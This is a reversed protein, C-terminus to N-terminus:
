RFAYGLSLGITYTTFERTAKDLPLRLQLGPRLQGFRYDGAVIVQHSTRDADDDDTTANARGTVGSGLSLQDKEYWIQGSYSVLLDDPGGDGGVFSPGGRLRFSVNDALPARYSGVAYLGFTEPLFAELRELEGAMGVLMPALADLDELDGLPARVGFEAMVRPTAQWEVGLYPNGILTSNGALPSSSASGSEAEVSWSARSFPLDAVVGWAGNLAYRGTVFGAATATNFTFEQEGFDPRLMELQLWSGGAAPNTWVTQGDAGSALLGAAMLGAVVTGLVRRFPKLISAHTYAMM